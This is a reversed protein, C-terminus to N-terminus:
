RVESNFFGLTVYTRGDIIQHQATNVTVIRLDPMTIIAEGTEAVWEVNAGLAEATARLPIKAADAGAITIRGQTAAYEAGITSNPMSSIFGLVADDVVRATTITSHNQTDNERAALVYSIDMGNFNANSTIIAYIADPNFPRGNISNITVREISNARRWIRDRYAEGPNFPRSANITYEIGSVHMLSATLAFTHATHPLGQASAELQELLEAGTLYVVAVTNPFPLVRRLDQLIVEGPHLFDRLNGANWLAVVYEPAVHIINNGFRVDDEGFFGNIEGSVAFWRLADAWLNGIAAEGSRTAAVSGDLMIDSHGVWAFEAAVMERLGAVAAAIDSKPAFANIDIERADFEMTSNDIIIAGISFSGPLPNPANFVIVDADIPMNPANTLAISFHASYLDVRSNFQLGAIHSELIMNAANPDTLGIFDVSIGGNTTVVYNPLIGFFHDNAGSINAAVAPLESIELLTGLPGFAVIDGHVAAMQAAGIAGTGFAFDYTGLAVVDYGVAAMLAIMSSGSNFSAYRTGQLFNGTDVLIVDAGQAEFDARVSAILPLLDINGRINGTHIVVTKGDYVGAAAVVAPLLAVVMCVAMFGGLLKSFMKRM